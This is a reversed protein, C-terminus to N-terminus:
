LVSKRQMALKLLLNTNRKSALKNSNYMPNFNATTKMPISFLKGGNKVTRSNSIHMLAGYKVGNPIMMFETHRKRNSSYMPNFNTTSNMLTSFRKGGAVVVYKIAM